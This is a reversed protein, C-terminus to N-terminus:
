RRTSRDPLYRSTGGRRAGEPAEVGEAVMKAAVMAVEVRVRAGSGMAAEGTAEVAWTATAMMEAKEEVGGMGTVVKATAEAEVVVKEWAM